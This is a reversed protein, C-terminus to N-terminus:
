NKSEEEYKKYERISEIVKKIIDKVKQDEVRPSALVKEFSEIAKDFELLFVHIIGIACTVNDDSGELLMELMKLQELSKRFYLFAKRQTEESNKKAEEKEKESLAEEASQWRLTVEDFEKGLYKGWLKDSYQAYGVAKNYLLEAYAKIAHTWAPELKLAEEFKAIAADVDGRRFDDSGAKVLRTAEKAREEATMPGSKCATFIFMVALIFFVAKIFCAKKKM